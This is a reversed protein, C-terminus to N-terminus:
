NEPADDRLRVGLVNAIPREISLPIALTSGDSPRNMVRLGGESEDEMVLTTSGGGDLNMAAFCGLREFEVSLEAYTMGVSFGKRRGDVVLLTLKTGERNVGVATRPHRDQNRSKVAAGNRILWQNGAIAQWSDPPFDEFADIRARGSKGIVLMPGPRRDSWIRGDSVAGGLVNAANGPFYKIKQGMREREDRVQFFDGNVAVHFQHRQAVTKVTALTTEWPGPGDPDEGGPTVLVSVRPDTLDVTVVHLQMPPDDRREHEYTIPRSPRSPAPAEGWLPVSTLALYAFILIFIRNMRTMTSM